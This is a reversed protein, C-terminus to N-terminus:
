ARKRAFVYGLTLLGAFSAFLSGVLSVSNAGTNPAGANGSGSTSPTSAGCVAGEFQFAGVSPCANPRAIGRADTTVGLVSGGASIAPSGPLLARTPVAGGNDQLPGLTSYVNSVNHQDTPSTFSGACSNDDFINHGLSNVSVVGTGLGSALATFDGVACNNSVGNSKNNALLSNGVSITSTATTGAGVGLSAAYFAASAALGTPDLTGDTGTVTVNNIITNVLADGNNSYANNSFPAAITTTSYVNDITINAANANLTGFGGFVNDWLGVSLMVGITGGGSTTNSINAITINQLSVNSVGGQGQNILLAGVVNASGVIDHVYIDSLNVTRTGSSLSQLFIAEFEGSSPLADSGDVEINNINLTEDTNSLIAYGSYAIVKLNSITASIGTGIEIGNYQGNDGDIITQSMGAGNIVINETIVPMDATLTQTGAPINITDSTGYGAGTATCGSQNAGANVSDIAIPLTCGGTVNLTAANARGSGFALVALFAFTALILKNTKSLSLISRM